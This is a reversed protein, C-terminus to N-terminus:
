YFKLMVTYLQRYKAKKAEVALQLLSHMLSDDYYEKHQSKLAEVKQMIEGPTMEPVGFRMAM